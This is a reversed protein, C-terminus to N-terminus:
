QASLEEEVFDVVEGVTLESVFRQDRMLLKESALNKLKFHQEIWVLLQVIEISEYCLDGIIKTEANIGGAFEPDADGGIDELENIIDELIRERQITKM